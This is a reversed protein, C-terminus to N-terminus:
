RQLLWLLAVLAALGVLMAAGKLVDRATFRDVHESRFRRYGPNTADKSALSAVEFASAEKRFWHQLEGLEETSVEPYRQLLTDVYDFRDAGGPLAPKRTDHM